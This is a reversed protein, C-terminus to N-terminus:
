FNVSVPFGSIILWQDANNKQWVIVPSVSYKVFGNDKTVEVATTVKVTNEDVKEHSTTTFSWSTINYKGLNNLIKEKLGAKNVPNNNKDNESFDESFYSMFEDVLAEQNEVPAALIEAMKERMGDYNASVIPFEDALTTEPAVPNSNNGGGGGGGGCGALAIVCVLGFLVFLKKM